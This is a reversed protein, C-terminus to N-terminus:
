QEDLSNRRYSAGMNRCYLNANIESQKREKKTASQVAYYRPM